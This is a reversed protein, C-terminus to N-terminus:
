SQLDKIKLAKVKYVKHGTPKHENPKPMYKQRKHIKTEPAAWVRGRLVERGLACM